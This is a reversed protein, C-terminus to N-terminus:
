DTEDILGYFCMTIHKFEGLRMIQGCIVIVTGLVRMWNKYFVLLAKYGVNLGDIRL